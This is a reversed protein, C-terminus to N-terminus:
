DADRWLVKWGAQECDIANWHPRRTLLLGAPLSARNTAVIRNDENVLVVPGHADRAIALLQSELRDLYIDATVVGAFGRVTVVSAAFMLRYQNDNGYDVYPGSVIRDAGSKASVFFDFDHYEYHEELKPDTLLFREVIEGDPRRIWYAVTYPKDAVVGRDSSFSLGRVMRDCGRLADTFAHELARLESSLLTAEGDFAEEVLEVVAPKVHELALFVVGFQETVYEAVRHAALGTSDDSSNM